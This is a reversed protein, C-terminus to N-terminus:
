RAPQQPMARVSEVVVRYFQLDEPSRMTARVMPIQAVKGPQLPEPLTFTPTQEVIRQGDTRVLRLSVDVLPV